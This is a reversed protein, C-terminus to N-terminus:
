GDFAFTLVEPRPHVPERLASDSPGHVRESHWGAYRDPQSLIM